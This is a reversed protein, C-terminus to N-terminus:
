RYSGDRFGGNIVGYKKNGLFVGLAPGYQYGYNVGYYRFGGGDFPGYYQLTGVKAGERKLTIAEGRVPAIVLLRDGKMDGSGHNDAHSKVLWKKPISTNGKETFLYAYSELDRKGPKRQKAEKIRQPRSTGDAMRYRLNLRPHWVCLLDAEKFKQKVVEMNSDVSNEGDYSFNFPKGPVRAHTGHVENKFKNSLGGKWPNNVIRCNPAADQVQNLFPDPNGLNHETFPSVELRGPFVGCLINYRKAEKVAAKFEPPGFKHDDKWILQVRILERGRDLEKKAVPFFDGFTRAFGSVAIRNPIHRLEEGYQAAALTDICPRFDALASSTWILLAILMRIM